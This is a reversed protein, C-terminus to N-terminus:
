VVLVVVVVVGAGVAVETIHRSSNDSSIIVVRDSGAAVVLVEAESSIVEAGAVGVAVSYKEHHVAEGQCGLQFDSNQAPMGDWFCWSVFGLRDLM